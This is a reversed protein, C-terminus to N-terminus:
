ETYIDQISIYRVNASTSIEDEVWDTIGGLSFILYQRVDYPQVLRGRNLLTEYEEKGFSSNKFKCEGIVAFKEAEDLGVM